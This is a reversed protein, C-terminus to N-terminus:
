AAIPIGAARVAEILGTQDPSKWHRIREMDLRVLNAFRGIFAIETEQFGMAAAQRATALRAHIAKMIGRHSPSVHGFVDVELEMGIKQVRILHLFRASDDATKETRGVRDLVQSLQAGLGESWDAMGDASYGFGILVRRWRSVVRGLWMAAALDTPARAAEANALLRARALPAALQTMVGLLEAWPDRFLAETRRAETLGAATMADLVSAYRDLGLDILRMLESDEPLLGGGRHLIGPVEAATVPGGFSETMLQHMSTVLLRTAASYHGLLAETTALAGAHNPRRRLWASCVAAAGRRHLSIAPLLAALEPVLEDQAKSLAAVARQIEGEGGNVPLTDIISAIAAAKRGTKLILALVQLLDPGVHRLPLRDDIEACCKRFFSVVESTRTKDALSHEIFRVMRSAIADKLRVVEAEQLILTVPRTESSTVLLQNLQQCQESSVLRESMLWLAGAHSRLVLGPVPFAAGAIWTDSSFWPDFLGYFCRRGHQRRNRNLRRVLLRQLAAQRPPIDLPGGPGPKARPMELYFAQAAGYDLREVLASLDDIPDLSGL